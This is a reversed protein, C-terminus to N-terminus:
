AVPNDRFWYALSMSFLCLAYAACCVWFFFNAVKEVKQKRRVRELMEEPSISKSEELTRGVHAQIYREIELKVADDIQIRRDYAEEYVALLEEHGADPNLVRGVEVGFETKLNEVIQERTWSKRPANAHALDKSGLIGILIGYIALNLEATESAEWMAISRFIVGGFVAVLALGLTLNYWIVHLPETVAPNGIALALLASALGVIWVIVHSSNAQQHRIEESLKELGQLYTKAFLYPARLKEAM